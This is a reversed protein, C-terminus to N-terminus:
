AFQFVGEPFIGSGIPDGAGPLPDISSQHVGITSKQDTTGASEEEEM